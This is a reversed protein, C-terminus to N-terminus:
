QNRIVGNSLREHVRTRPFVIAGRIYLPLM